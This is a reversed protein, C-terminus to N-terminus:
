CARLLISSGGYQMSGVIADVIAASGRGGAQSHAGARGICLQVLLKAGEQRAGVQKISGCQPHGGSLSQQHVGLLAEDHLGERTLSHVAQRQM